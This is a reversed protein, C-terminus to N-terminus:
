SGKNYLSDHFYLSIILMQQVLQQYNWLSLAAHRVLLIQSHLPASGFREVVHGLLSFRFPDIPFILLNHLSDDVHFRLDGTGTFHLFVKFLIMHRLPSHYHIFVLTDVHLIQDHQLLSESIGVSVLRRHQWPDCWVSGLTHASAGVLHPWWDLIRRRRLVIIIATLPLVFSFVDAMWYVKLHRAYRLLPRARWHHLSRLHRQGAGLVWGNVPCRVAKSVGLTRSLILSHLYRPMRIVIM